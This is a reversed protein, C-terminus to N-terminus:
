RWGFGDFYSFLIGSFLDYLKQTPPIKNLPSQIHCKCDHYSIRPIGLYQRSNIIIIADPEYHFTNKIKTFYDCRGRFIFAIRDKLSIGNDNPSCGYFWPLDDFRYFASTQHVFLATHDDLVPEESSTQYNSYEAYYGKLPKTKKM